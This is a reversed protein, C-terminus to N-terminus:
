KIYYLTNKGISDDKKLGFIYPTGEKSVVIKPHYVNKGDYIHKTLWNKGDFVVYKIESTKKDELLMHVRDHYTTYSYIKNGQIFDRSNGWTAGNGSKIYKTEKEEFKSKSLDYNSWIIYFEDKLTFFADIVDENSKKEDNFVITKPKHWENEILKSFVIVKKTKWLKSKISVWVAYLTDDKVIGKFDGMVVSGKEITLPNNIMSDDIKISCYKPHYVGDWLYWRYDRNNDRYMLYDINGVTYVNEPYFYEGNRKFHNFNSVEKSSLRIKTFCDLNKYYLNGTGTIVLFPNGIENNDDFGYLNINNFKSVNKLIDNMVVLHEIEQNDYSYTVINLENDIFAVDYLTVNEKIPIDIPSNASLCIIALISLLNAM